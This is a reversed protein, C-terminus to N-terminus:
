LDVPISEVFSKIPYFITSSDIGTSRDVIKLLYNRYWSNTIKITGLVQFLMKLYYPNSVVITAYKEIMYNIDNIPETNFLLIVLQCFKDLDDDYEIQSLLDFNIKEINNTIIKNNNYRTQIISNLILRLVSNPINLNFFSNSLNIVNNFMKLNVELNSRFLHHLRMKKFCDSKQVVEFILDLHSSEFIVLWANKWVSVNDDFVPNKVSLLNLIKNVTNKEPIIDVHKGDDKRYIYTFIYLIFYFKKNINEDSELLLENLYQLLSIKEEYTILNYVVSNCNEFKLYENDGNFISKELEIFNIDKYSNIKFNGSNYYKFFLNLMWDNDTDIFREKIRDTLSHFSKIFRYFTESKPELAYDFYNVLYQINYKVAIKRLAGLILENRRIVSIYYATLASYIHFEYEQNCLGFLAWQLFPEEKHESEYKLKTDALYNIIKFYDPVMVEDSAFKPAILILLIEEVFEKLIKKENKILKLIRLTTNNKSQIGETILLNFKEIPYIELAEKYLKYFRKNIIGLDNFNYLITLLTSFNINKDIFSITKNAVTMDSTQTFNTAVFIYTEIQNESLTTFNSNTFFKDIIWNEKIRNQLRNFKIHESHHLPLTLLDELLRAFRNTLKPSDNFIGESLIDLSLWSGMKLSNKHSNEFPELDSGNLECCLSYVFDLLHEKNLRLYGIGFLLTNRWYSNTSINKLRVKVLTDKADMYYNAAFFEQLSRVVFGVKEDQIESIFVLRNTIVKRFEDVFNLIDVNSWEEDNLYDILLGEFVTKKIASYTNNNETESQLKFGLYNHIKNILHEYTNILPSVKKQKERKFITEYYEKFLGYKNSSPEGGSIVLIAMITAQLPTRMLNSTVENTLSKNLSKLYERKKEETYEFNSLLKSLYTMCIEDSMDTLYFHKYKERSFESSYGQPRTTAIILADCNISSLEREVFDYIEKIVVDRNSTLPVEDLGDFIFVFSLSKLLDRITKIEINEGTELYIKFKIYNLLSIPERGSYENIWGAYDKLVIKFPLRYCTPLTISLSNCENIFYEINDNTYEFIYKLSFAIYLQSSFQTITSKGAGANGILVIKEQKENIRLSTNGNQVIYDISYVSNEPHTDLEILLDIFVNELNISHTLDGAHILKSTQEANFEKEFYNKLTNKAHHISNKEYNLFNMLSVLVDGSLIFSTYTTAINRNNDLLRCIEDNGGIFINPIIKCYKSKLGEIKDRGGKDLTPTLVANTFFIYNDPIKYGKKLFKKIENKFNKEVWEYDSLKDEKSKYKAQVVWYGKWQNIKNPYDAAGVYTLERAGDSGAGFVISNDGLLDQTLSQILHEFDTPNLRFLNYNM